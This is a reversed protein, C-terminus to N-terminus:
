PYILHWFFLLARLCASHNHSAPPERRPLLQRRLPLRDGDSALLVEHLDSVGDLLGRALM